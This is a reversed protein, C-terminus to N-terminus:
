GRAETLSGPRVREDRVQRMNRIAQVAIMDGVFEIACDDCLRAVLGSPLPQSILREEPYDRECNWCIM